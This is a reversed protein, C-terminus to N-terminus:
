GIEKKRDVQNPTLERNIVMRADHDLEEYKLHGLKLEIEQEALKLFECRQELNTKMPSDTNMAKLADEIAGRVRRSEYRREQLKKQKRLLEERKSRFRPLPIPFPGEEEIYSGITLFLGVIAVVASFILHLVMVEPVQFGASEIAEMEVGVAIADWAFLAVLALFMWWRTPVWRVIM